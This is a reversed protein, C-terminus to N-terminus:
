SLNEVIQELIEKEHIERIYDILYQFESFNIFSIKIWGWIIRMRGEHTSEKSLRQEADKRYYSM